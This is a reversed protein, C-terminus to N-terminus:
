RAAKRQASCKSCNELDLDWDDLSGLLDFDAYDTM